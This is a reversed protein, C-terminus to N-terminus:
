SLSKQLAFYTLGPGPWGFRDVEELVPDAAYLDEASEHVLVM